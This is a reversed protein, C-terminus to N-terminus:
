QTLSQEILADIPDKENKNPKPEFLGSPLGFTNALYDAGQPTAQYGLNAVLSGAKGVNTLTNTADYAGRESILRIDNQLGIEQQTAWDSLAAKRQRVEDSLRSLASSLSDRLSNQQEAIYRREDSTASAKASELERQISQFSAAIENLKAQKEREIREFSQSAVNQAEARRGEIDRIGQAQSELALGRQKLGQRGIASSAYEGASTDGAGRSGLQRATSTTTNRQDEALSRLSKQTEGRVNDEQRGLLGLSQDLQQQVINRGSESGSVVGSRLAEQEQPLRDIQTQFGRTLPDFISAAQSATAARRAASEEELRRQEDAYASNDFETSAGAVAGGASFANTPAGTVGGSSQGTPRIGAPNQSPNPAQYAPGLKQSNAPITQTNPKVTTASSLFQKNPDQIEFANATNTKFLLDRTQKLGEYPNFNGESIGFDPLGLKRMELLSRLAM